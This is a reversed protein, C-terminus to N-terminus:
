STQAGGLDPSKDYWGRNGPGKQIKPAKPLSPVIGDEFINLAKGINHLLRVQEIFNGMGNNTTHALYVRAQEPSLFEEVVAKAMSLSTELRSGGLEPNKRLETKWTDNLADWVRRQETRAREADGKREEVYLDLLKQADEQPIQRAGIIDTFKAVEKDDLKIGDPVKFAEYKLPAPPAIATAEKAPDPAKAADDAKADAAKDAPKDGEPKADKGDAAKDAEAPAPKTDSGAKADVTPAKADKADAKPKSKAAELLSPKSEPPAKDAAAPAAGDTKAPPAAPAAEAPTAPASAGPSTSAPLAADTAAIPSASPSSDGSPQAAAAPAAAPAPIPSAAPAADAAPVPTSPAADPAAYYPLYRDHFKSLM